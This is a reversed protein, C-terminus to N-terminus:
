PTAEQHTTKQALMARITPSLKQAGNAQAIPDVVLTDAAAIRKATAAQQEAALHERHQRELETKVLPPVPSTPKGASNPRARIAAVAAAIQEPAASTEIADASADEASYWCEIGNPTRLPHRRKTEIISAAADATGRAPARPAAAEKQLVKAEQLVKADPDGFDSYASTPIDSNLKIEKYKKASSLPSEVAWRDPTIMIWAKGSITGNDRRQEEIRIAGVRELERLRARVADRGEPGLAALHALRIEWGGPLDWLFAFLGRAGFTLRQDRLVSRPIQARFPERGEHQIKIDSM